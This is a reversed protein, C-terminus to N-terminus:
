VIRLSYQISGCADCIYCLIIVYVKDKQLKLQLNEPLNRIFFISIYFLLSTLTFLPLAGARWIENILSRIM